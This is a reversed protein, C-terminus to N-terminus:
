TVATRLPLFKGKFNNPYSISPAERDGAAGRYERDAMSQGNVYDGTDRYDRRNRNNGSNGDFDQRDRNDRTNSQCNVVMLLAM